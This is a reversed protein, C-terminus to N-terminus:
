HMSHNHRLVIRGQLQHELLIARCGRDASKHERAVADSVGQEFDGLMARMAHHKEAVRTLAFGHAHVHRCIVEALDAVIEEANASTVDTKADAARVHALGAAAAAAGVVFKHVIEGIGDASVMTGNRSM